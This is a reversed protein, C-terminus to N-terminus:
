KMLPMLVRGTVRMGRYTWVHGGVRESVVDAEKVPLPPCGLRM